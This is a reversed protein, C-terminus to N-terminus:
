STPSSGTFSRCGQAQRHFGLHLHRVGSRRPRASERTTRATGRSRRGIVTWAFPAPLTRLRSLLRQQTLLVPMASDQVYHALRDRPVGPRATCVGGAKLIGLLGVVMAPAGVCLGVLDGPRCGLAKLYHAVQNAQANLERYTLQGGETVAVPRDPTQAAQWEFLLHVCRDRAYEVATDNWTHVVQRYEDGTLPSPAAVSGETTAHM